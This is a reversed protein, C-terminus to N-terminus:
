KELKSHKTYMPRFEYRPMFIGGLRNDGYFVGFGRLVVVREDPLELSYVSSCDKRSEPPEFQRFG